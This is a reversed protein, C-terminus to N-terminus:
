VHKIFPFNKYKEEIMETINISIELKQKFGPNRGGGEFGQCHPRSLSFWHLHFVMDNQIGGCFKLKIKGLNLM